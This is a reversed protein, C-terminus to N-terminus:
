LNEFDARAVRVGSVFNSDSPFVPYRAASQVIPVKSLCGGGRLVRASGPPVCACDASDLANDFYRSSTWEWANGSMDSLGFGNKHGPAGSPHSTLKCNKGIWAHKVAASEDDGWWFRENAGRGAQGRCAYEWERESPLRGHLFVSVAWSDYWSLYMAPCSGSESYSERHAFRDAKDSDFMAYVGNTVVFDSLLFCSELRDAQVREGGREYGPMGIGIKGSLWYELSGGAKNPIAVFSSDFNNATKRRKAGFDGALIQPFESLLGYLVRRSALRISVQGDADKVDEWDCPREGCEVRQRVDRQLRNTAEQVDGEHFDVPLCGSDHLSLM